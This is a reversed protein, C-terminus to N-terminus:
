ADREPLEILMTAVSPRFGLGEFLKRAPENAWATELRIQPCGMAAFREIATIALQRGVGEHRYEPEVWMDHIFGHDGHKYISLDKERTGVLYGVLRGPAREAVLFVGGERGPLSGMWRAYGELYGERPEFKARDWETHLEYVGRVMPLVQPVDEPTGDRVEVM